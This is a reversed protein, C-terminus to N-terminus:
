AAEQGILDEVIALRYARARARYDRELRDSWWPPWRWRGAVDDWARSAFALEAADTTVPLGAPMPWDPETAVWCLRVPAAHRAVDGVLEGIDAADSREREVVDVAVGAVLHWDMDGARYWPSVCLSPADRPRRGWDSGVIIWVRAPHEGRDRAQALARGYAPLRRYRRSV